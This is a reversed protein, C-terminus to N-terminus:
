AGTAATFAIVGSSALTATLETADDHAAGIEISSLHFSGAVAGIGEIDVTYGALLKSTDTGLSLTVLTAGDMLGEFSIDASRVSADALLTRWGDSGKDTVDIAENNITLKTTKGGAILTKTTGTGSYLKVKRGALKAM